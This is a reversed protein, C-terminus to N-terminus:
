TDLDGEHGHRQLTKRAERIGVQTNEEDTGIHVSAVGEFANIIHGAIENLDGAPIPEASLFEVTLNTRYFKRRSAM